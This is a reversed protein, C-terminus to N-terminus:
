SPMRVIVNVSDIKVEYKPLPKKPPGELVNGSADFRGGHCACYIDNQEKRYGLTCELHTCTASLASVDSGSRRILMVQRDGINVIKASNEPISNLAIINSKGANPNNRVSAPRFHQPGPSIFRYAAYFFPFATVVGFLYVYKTLNQLHKTGRVLPPRCPTTMGAFSPPVGQTM